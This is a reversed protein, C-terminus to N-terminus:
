KALKYMECAAMLFVGPGYLETQDRTVNKPDKGIPQVYGMKGDPFIASVINEWGKKVVPLYKDKPLYGENIGYALAYVFLATGSSEPAPYSDPDLLSARWSGDPLQLAAIVPSMEKFLKIYYPKYKKDNAPLTKIIEALGGMVWGNGRSWFVKKGNAEKQGIYNGDRYFLKESKDYLKDYTYKFEKHAFEMYKENGTLTYLRSYVPPAMFIADCWSWRELSVPKGYNLVSEDKSPHAIVWDIRAVTPNIMDQKKHKNYLDIYTQCVVVDDAHYMRHHPRWHDKKLLDRLWKDYKEDQSLEAWDTLGMLFVAPVWDTPKRKTNKFHDIQWDAVKRSVELISDKKLEASFASTEQVAPTTTEAQIAITGMLVMSLLPILSLRM